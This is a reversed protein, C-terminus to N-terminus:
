EFDDRSGGARNRHGARGCGRRDRTAGGSPGRAIAQPDRATVSGGEPSDRSGRAAHLPPGSVESDGRDCSAHSFLFRGQALKPPDAPSRFIGRTGAIRPRPKRTYKLNQVRPLPKHPATV